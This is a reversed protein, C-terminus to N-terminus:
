IHFQVWRVHLEAANACQSSQVCGTNWPCFELKTMRGVLRAYKIPNSTDSPLDTTFIRRFYLASAAKAYPTSNEELLKLLIQQEGDLM